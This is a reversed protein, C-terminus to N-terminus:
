APATELLRQLSQVLHLATARGDVDLGARTRGGPPHRDMVVRLAAAAQRAFMSLLELENLSSRSQPAPDLVELVGLVREGHVLPAAMLSRPVYRTSEALGRDFAADQQLDNVVMAEGTSAVWGAIGASAPFRRGVLEGEGEGSVSQFVLEDADEDLLFVSSAAAGFIARAVDVVSQLLGASLPDLEPYNESM